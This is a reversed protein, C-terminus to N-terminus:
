NDIDANPPSNISFGASVGAAYFPLLVARGIFSTHNTLWFLDLYLWAGILYIIFAPYLLAIIGRLKSIPKKNM